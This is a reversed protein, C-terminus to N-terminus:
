RTRTLLYSPHRLGTPEYLEDHTYVFGLRTLLGRSAANAPNHGAFLAKAGLTAFAHEVVSSAAEVAYRHRWHRSAIHVGFEPTAPDDGHPRLGCCGVHEGSSLLFIPWYQIGHRRQMAIERELRDRIQTESLPGAAIFRTVAPDGWLVLALPLDSGRWSRFGLRNSRLFFASEDPATPGRQVADATTVGWRRTVLSSTAFV